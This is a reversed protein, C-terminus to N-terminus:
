PRLESVSQCYCTDPCGRPGPVWHSDCQYHACVDWPLQPRQCQPGPTPVGAAARGALGMLEVLVVGLATFTTLTSEEGGERFREGHVACSIVGMREATFLEMSPPVKVKGLQFHCMSQFGCPFQVRPVTIMGETDEAPVEM